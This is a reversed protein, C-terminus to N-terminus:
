RRPYDSPGPRPEEGFHESSDGDPTRVTYTCENQPQGSKAYEELVAKGTEKATRKAIGRVGLNAVNNATLALNGVSYLANGVVEGANEGYRFLLVFIYKFLLIIGICIHININDHHYLSGSTNVYKHHVITVTNETISGALLRAANELGMFVTGFGAIGGGAILLADNLAGNSAVGDVADTPALSKAIRRGLACTMDGVASVVFRHYDISFYFFFM